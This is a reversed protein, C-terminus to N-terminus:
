HPLLRAQKMRRFLIQGLYAALLAKIVGVILFPTFGTLFATQWELKLIYKLWVTGIFLNMIMGIFNACILHIISHPVRAIYASIVFAMLPFSLLFGGTPGFIIGLGSTFSAFVPLGIAGMILYLCVALTAQKKPLVTAILGVAFTQLTLPIIPIPITIQALVSILTASFAIATLQKTSLAM